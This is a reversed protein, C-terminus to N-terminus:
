RLWSELATASDTKDDRYKVIVPTQLSLGEREGWEATVRRAGPVVVADEPIELPRDAGGRYVTERVLDFVPTGRTLIVGAGIVAGRRVVTGEYIGCNGGVIVDDEVVVPSANIPELVGGVQAAASLHVREGIQACSGVLAHSDVMTGAGIHAGVNVYMPPMCVVGPAVYAGRRISSGGPVVRVSDDLSLARLPYTDKDFFTFGPHGGRPSLDTLKGVQFGLLIGRKVWPVANWTGDDGREASRVDGAELASLLDDIVARAERSPEGSTVAAAAEEIRERLRGSDPM